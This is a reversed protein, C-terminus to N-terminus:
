IGFAGRWALVPVVDLGVLCKELCMVATFDKNSLPSRTLGTMTCNELSIMLLVGRVEQVHPSSVAFADFPSFPLARCVFSQRVELHEYLSQLGRAEAVAQCDPFVLVRPSDDTVASRDALTEWVEELLGSLRTTQEM